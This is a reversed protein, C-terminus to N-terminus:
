TSSSTATTVTATSTATTTTTMTTPSTRTTSTSTASAALTAEDVAIDGNDDDVVVNSSNNDDDVDGDDVFINGDDDNVVTNNNGGDNDDDDANMHMEQQLFHFPKHNFTPVLPIPDAKHIAIRATGNLSHYHGSGAMAGPKPRPAHPTPLWHYLFGHGAALLLLSISIGFIENPHPMKAARKKGVNENREVFIM